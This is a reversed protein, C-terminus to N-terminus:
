GGLLGKLFGLFKNGVIPDNLIAFQKRYTELESKLDSNQKVVQEYTPQAPTPAITTTSPPVQTVDGQWPIGFATCIAHALALAVRRIDALIVKDHPDQLAGCEILACPTKATLVNWMYYFTENNTEQNNDVIGSDAFYVTKMAAVIRKSEVNAADVSPNPAVINGGTPASQAHIALYLAFDKNLTNTAYNANADDLQVQFGYKILMQGLLDRVAVNFPMEGAAGTETKLLPDPNSAINQHGAQLGILVM